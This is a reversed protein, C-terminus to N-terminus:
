RKRNSHTSHRLRLEESGPRFFLANCFELKGGDPHYSQEFFGSLEYGFEFLYQAVERYSSHRPDATDFTVEAYIFSIKGDCLTLEGGRLVDLEMHETDIKLVDVHEIQNDAVIQDLTAIQVTELRGCSVDPLNLAPYLSNLANYKQLHISTRGAQRGLALQMCCTRPSAGVRGMLKSFTSSVPEFAIVYAAPFQCLYQSVTVGINAGVDLILEIKRGAHLRRIFDYHHEPSVPEGLSGTRHFERCNCSRKGHFTEKLCQANSPTPM